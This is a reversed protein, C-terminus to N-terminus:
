LETIHSDFPSLERVELSGSIPLASTSRRFRLRKKLYAELAEDLQALDGFVAAAATRPDVGAGVKGLYDKLQKQREPDSHLMHVLLWSQGYFLERGKSDFQSPENFLIDEVPFRQLLFLGPARHLAPKGYTFGGDKDFSSTSYYEAFGERYWAPYAFSSNRFMFHHAYEHFLTAQGTLDFKSDGRERSAVAFSGESSPVYFGAVGGGRNGALKAVRGTSAVMYITLKYPHPEPEVGFGIRLLADFREVSLAFDELQKRSGDSYIVFNHTDARLWDRAAAPAYAFAALVLAAVIRSKFSVM